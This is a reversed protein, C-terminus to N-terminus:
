RRWSASSGFAGHVLVFMTMAVVEEFPAKYGCEPLAM